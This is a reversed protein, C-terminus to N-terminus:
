SFDWTLFQLDLALVASSSSSLRKLQTRSQTARHVAAQWAGRDMPNELRSYQFPTGNGERPPDYPRVIIILSDPYEQTSPDNWM